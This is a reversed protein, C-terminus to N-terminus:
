IATPKRSFSFKHGVFGIVQFVLSALQPYSVVLVGQSFFWSPLQCPMAAFRATWQGEIALAISYALWQEYQDRENDFRAAVPEALYAKFSLWRAAQERGSPTRRPVLLAFRTILPSTIVAALWPLVLLLHENFFLLSVALGFVSVFFLIIGITRIRLHLQKPDEQFYGLRTMTQYIEEIGQSVSESWVHQNLRKNITPANSVLQETFIQELFLKEYPQLKPDNQWQRKQSFGFDGEGRYIIDIYGRVALDILTAAIERMGVYGHLLVGVLAPPLHAPPQVQPQLSPQLSIDAWRSRLLLLGYLLIAGPVVLAVTLWHVFGVRESAVLLRQWLNLQISGPPLDLTFTVQAEPGIEEATFLVTSSDTIIAESRAVGHVAYIIPRSEHASVGDPLQVTVAVRAIAQDPQDVVKYRMVYKDALLDFKIQRSPQGNILIDGSSQIVVQQDIVSQFSSDQAWALHASGILSLGIALQLVLRVTKMGRKEKVTGDM